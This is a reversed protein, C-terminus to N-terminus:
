TFQACVLHGPNPPQQEGEIKLLLLLVPPEYNLSSKNILACEPRNLRGRPIELHGVSWHSFDTVM